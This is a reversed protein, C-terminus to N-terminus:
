YIRFGGQGVFTIFENVVDSWEQKLNDIDRRLAEVM